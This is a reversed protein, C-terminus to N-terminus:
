QLEAAAYIKGYAAKIFNFLIVFASIINQRARRLKLSAPNRANQCHL